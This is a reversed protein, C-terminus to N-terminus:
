LKVMAFIVNRGDARTAPSCPPLTECIATNTSGACGDCSYGNRTEAVYVGALDHVGGNEADVAAKIAANADDVLQRLRGAGIEAVNPNLAAVSQALKRLLELETAM